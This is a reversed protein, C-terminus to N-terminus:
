PEAGRRASAMTGGGFRDKLARGMLVLEGSRLGALAATYALAGVVTGFGLAGPCWAPAVVRGLMAATGAVAAATATVLLSVLFDRRVHHGTKFWILACLVGFSVSWYVAFGLAVGSAHYRAALWPMYIAYAIVEVVAIAAPTWTDQLAYFASSVIGGLAMAIMAVLFWPLLGAVVSTDAAAFRGREFVVAVFEVRLAILMTVAPAVLFWMLRLRAAMTGRLLAPDGGAAHESLRVFTTVSLGSAIVTVLVTVLRNAYGLHALSGASLSSAVYRDVLTAGRSFVAGALLPLALRLVKRLGEPQDRLTLRFREERLVLPAVLLLQVVSGGLAAVAVGAIGLKPALALTGALSAVAGLVPAAAARGFRDHSQYLGGLLTALGLTLVTPWSIRAMRVALALTEPAFGPVLMRQLPSAFVMGILAVGGLALLGITMLAGAVRWAGDVDERRRHEVFVPIFMYNLSNVLVAIVFQPLTTAALYADMDAGAGFLAALILQTAFGVVLGGLSLLSV